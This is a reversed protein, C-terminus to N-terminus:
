ESRDFSEGGSRTSLSQYIRFDINDDVFEVHGDGFAFNAGGPHRSAFAGNQQWGYSTICGGEGPPTNLPNSTSRHTESERAGKSWMNSSDGTHNEITEGVFMTANLGDTIDMVAMNSGYFFVGTNHSKADALSECKNGLEDYSRYNGAGFTGAVTAYSGTAIPCNETTFGFEKCCAVERKTFFESDDSPCVYCNPRQALAARNKNTAAFWYTAASIWPGRDFDFMDYTAQQDMQPLILVLASTGVRSQDAGSRGDRGVRSPPFVKFASEYTLLALAIMKENKACQMRRAAERAAQVAPLLLAVLVGIIAIVVLLEVLTFAKRRNAM